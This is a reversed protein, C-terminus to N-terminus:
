SSKPQWDVGYKVEAGAPAKVTLSLVDGPDRSWSLEVQGSDQPRPSLTYSYTVSGSFTKTQDEAVTTFTAPEATVMSPPEPKWAMNPPDSKGAAQFSTRTLNSPLTNHLRVTVHQHNPDKLTIQATAQRGGGPQTASRTIGTATLQTGDLFAQAKDTAANPASYTINGQPDASWGVTVSDNNPKCTYTVKGSMAATNDSATVSTVLETTVGTCGNLDTPAAASWTDKSGDVATITLTRKLSEAPTLTLTLRPHASDGTGRLERGTIQRKQGNDVTQSAEGASLGASLNSTNALTFTNDGTPPNDWTLTTDEQTGALRFALSGKFPMDRATAQCALLTTSGTVTRPLATPWDVGTLSSATLTWTSNGANVTLAISRDAARTPDGTQPDLTISDWYRNQNVTLDLKDVVPVRPGPDGGTPGPTIRPSTSLRIGPIRALVASIEGQTPIRDMPWGTHHPGGTVPHLTTILADRIDQRLQQHDRPPLDTTLDIGIHLPVCVPSTILIRAGLLRLTNLLDRAAATLGPNVRLALASPPVGAPLEPILVVQIDYRTREAPAAQLCVARALGPLSDELAREYDEATVCRRTRSFGADTNRLLLDATEPDSGGHAPAPNTVEALPVSDDATRLENPPDILHTLTRAAVNGRAGQTFEAAHIAITAGKDPVKGCQRVGQRTTVQPGFLIRSTAPDLVFHPTEADATAFTEARTWTQRMGDPQPTVVVGAADLRDAALFGPLRFSQGPTGDSVGVQEGAQKSVHIVQLATVPQSTANAPALYPISWQSGPPGEATIRLAICGLATFAAQGQPIRRGTLEVPKDDMLIRTSPLTFTCPVPGGTHAYTGNYLWNVPQWGEGTLVEWTTRPPVDPEGEPSRMALTVHVTLLKGPGPDALLVLARGRHDPADPLRVPMAQDLDLRLPPTQTNSPPFVNPCGYAYGAVAPLVCEEQTTFVVADDPLAPDTSVRTGAPVRLATDPHDGPARTFTLVTRAAMAPQLPRALLKLYADRVATPMRGLRYSLADIEAACAELLTVGPDSVNHDTWQPYLSPILRKADDVVDQFRLTDLASQQQTGQDSADQSAPLPSTM